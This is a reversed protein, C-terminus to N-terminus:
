LLVGISSKKQMDFFNTAEDVLKYWVAVFFASNKPLNEFLM